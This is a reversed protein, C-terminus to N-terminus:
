SAATKVPSFDRVHRPQCRRLPYFRYGQGRTSPKQRGVARSRLKHPRPQVMLASFNRAAVVVEACRRSFSTNGSIAPRISAAATRTGTAETEATSKVTVNSRLTDIPSTCDRIRACVPTMPQVSFGSTDDSRRARGSLRITDKGSVRTVNPPSTRTKPQYSLSHPKEHRISSTALIM